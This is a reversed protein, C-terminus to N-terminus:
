KKEQSAQQAAQKNYAAAFKDMTVKALADQTAKIEDGTVGEKDLVERLKEIHQEVEARESESLYSVFTELNKETDTIM